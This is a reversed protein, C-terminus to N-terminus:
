QAGYALETLLIYDTRRGGSLKRKRLHGAVELEKLYTLVSRSSANMHAAIEPQTPHPKRTAKLWALALYAKTAGPSLEQIREVFTAPLTLHM